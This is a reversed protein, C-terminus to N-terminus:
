QHVGVNWSGDATIDLIYIGADLGLATSGSYAGIENVLLDVCNGNSDWLWIIFNASGYNHTMDFYVLGGSTYFFDSARHGSGSYTQPISPASTPRPQEITVTWPGDATINLMYNTTAEIGLAHSGNFSGIENVLLEVREGNQNYLWIIFNSSGSHTMTFKSIGKELTFFSTATDGRGSFNYTQLGPPPPPPPPPPPAFVNFAYSLLGSPGDPNIVLVDYVAVPVNSLNFSCTITQGDVVNANEGAFSSNNGTLFVAAGPQFNKGTITVSVSEGSQAEKPSISTVGPPQPTYSFYMPREVVIVQDSTIATSVERGQGVVGNVGVTWRSNGAINMEHNGIIGSSDMFIATVKAAADGPNQICLYEDFGTGTYGEAFYWETNGADAGLVCHGGACYGNYLFYMPREAIVPLKSQLSVSIDKDLGLIDTPYVTHRSTAGVILEQEVPVGGQIMYTLKIKTPDPNPNLICIYEEFGARTTGEAFFWEQKPENAGSIIHGGPWKAGYNFYMPRECIIESPSDVQVSVDGKFSCDTNVSVTYRSRASVPHTHVEKQGSNNFYTISISAPQDNPNQICLYEEFGDGTYGEAFFWTSKKANVGMEDHGGSWKWGYNFYMPREAIIPEQAVIKVSVDKGPPVDAGVNVTTRSKRALQIGAVINGGEDLMYTLTANVPVENPNQVTLWENFGSRTCGEAFYWLKSAQKCGVVDHGGTWQALTSPLSTTTILLLFVVISALRVFSKIMRHSSM